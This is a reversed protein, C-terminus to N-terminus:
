LFLYTYGLFIDDNKLFNFEVTPSKPEVPALCNFKDLSLLDQDMSPPGPEIFPPRSTTNKIPPKARRRSLLMASKLLSMFEFHNLLIPENYSFSLKCRIDSELKPKKSFIFAEM